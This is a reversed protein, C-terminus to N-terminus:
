EDMDGEDWWDQGEPVQLYEDMRLVNNKRVSVRFASSREEQERIARWKEIRERNNRYNAFIAKARDSKTPVPLVVPKRFLDKM